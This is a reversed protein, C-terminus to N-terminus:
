NQAGIRKLAANPLHQSAVLGMGDSHLDRELLLGSAAAAAGSSEMPVPSADVGLEGEEGCTAMGM